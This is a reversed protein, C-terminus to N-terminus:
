SYHVRTTSLRPTPLPVRLTHDAGLGHDAGGTRAAQHRPGPKISSRRPKAGYLGLSGISRWTEMLRAQVEPQHRPRTLKSSARTSSNQRAPTVTHGRAESPDSVTSSDLSFTPSRRQPLGSALPATANRTAIRIAQGDHHDRACFLMLVFCSAALVATRHAVFRRPLHVVPTLSFPAIRSTRRIDAALPM